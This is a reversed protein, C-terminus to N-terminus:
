GHRTQMRCIWASKGAAGATQGRGGGGAPRWYFTDRFYIQYLRLIDNLPAPIGYTRYECNEFIALYAPLVDRFEEHARMHAIAGRVDGRLFYQSIHM